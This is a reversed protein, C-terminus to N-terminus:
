ISNAAHLGIDSYPLIPRPPMDANTREVGLKPCQDASGARCSRAM